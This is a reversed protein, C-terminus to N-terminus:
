PIHAWTKRRKILSIAPLSVGYDKAIDRHYRPDARISIVDRVKLKAPGHRRTNHAQELRTAWRCNKPEYNGNNNIRDITLDKPCEDMDALFNTFGDSGSWRECVRIGRAGYNGDYDTNPRCRAHMGKWIRYTRTKRGRRSHGHIVNRQNRQCGCNQTKSSRLNSGQVEREVGCDCRCIWRRHHTRTRRLSGLAVVTWTGFRKGTLDILSTV